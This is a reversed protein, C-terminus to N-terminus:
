SLKTPRREPCNKISEAIATWMAKKALMRDYPLGRNKPSHIKALWSYKDTLGWTMVGKTAPQDLVVDLFRRTEDAVALDRHAVSTDLRSETVDLESIVVELGLSELDSIFRGLSKPALINEGQATLHAQIGFGHVPVGERLWKELTKLVAIRRRQHWRNNYELGYENCFLRAQPAVAHALEFARQPFSKGFVKTMQWTRLYDGRKDEPHIVENLVDWHRLHTGYRNGVYNVYPVVARDWDADTLVESDLWTPVSGHWFLTHGRLWLGQRSAFESLQDMGEPAFSGFQPQLPKWKMDWEPVICACERAVLEALEKDQVLHSAHASTGFFLGKAAALSALSPEFDSAAGLLTAAALSAAGTVFKRRNVSVAKSNQASALMTKM